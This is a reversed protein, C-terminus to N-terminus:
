GMFMLKPNGQLEERISNKLSIMKEANKFVIGNKAIQQM